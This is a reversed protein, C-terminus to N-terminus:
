SWKKFILDLDSKIEFITNSKPLFIFFFACFRVKYMSIDIGDQGIEDLYAKKSLKDSYRPSDKFDPGLDSKIEFPM